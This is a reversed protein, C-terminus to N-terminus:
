NSKRASPMGISRDDRLYTRRGTKLDACVYNGASDSTISSAGLCWTATKRDFVGVSDPFKQVWDHDPRLARVTYAATLAVACAAIVIYFWKPTQM